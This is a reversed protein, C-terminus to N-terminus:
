GEAETLNRYRDQIARMKGIAECVSCDSHTGSNRCSTEHRLAEWLDQLAELSEQLADDAVAHSRELCTNHDKCPPSNDGGCDAVHRLPPQIYYHDNM